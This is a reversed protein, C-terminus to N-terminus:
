CMKNSLLLFFENLNKKWKAFKASSVEQGFMAEPIKCCMAESCGGQTCQGPFYQFALGHIVFLTQMQQCFLVMLCKLLYKMIKSHAGYPACAGAKHYICQSKMSFISVYLFGTSIYHFFILKSHLPIINSRKLLCPSYHFLCFPM